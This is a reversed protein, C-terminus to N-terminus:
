ASTQPTFLRSSFRFLLLGGGTILFIFLLASRKKKKPVPEPAPEIQLQDSQIENMQPNKRGPPIPKVHKPSKKFNLYEVNRHYASKTISDIDLDYNAYALNRYVTDYQYYGHYNDYVEISSSDNLRIVQVLRPPPIGFNTNPDIFFDAATGSHSKHAIIATQAQSLSAIFCLFFLFATKM